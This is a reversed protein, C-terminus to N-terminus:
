WETAYRTETMIPKRTMGEKKPTLKDVVRRLSGLKEVTITYVDFAVEVKGRIVFLSEWNLLDGFEKYSDSFMVCEFIDTEDEFTVFEMPERKKTSTVKRTIYVGALNITQGALNPIDQAKRIREGLVPLYRELPHETVPFGFSEIELTLREQHTLPERSYSIQVPEGVGDQLYFNAVKFVIEKHNTEPELEAFCGANTLAMADALNIDVRVLFDNLSQFNGTKREALITDITKSQLKKIAMFGMRIRDKRGRYERWSTNIYPPLIKTGFRRAESLYAYASYFGGQNSIVAALFEAPFHAKLFACTFSLMAYSASHPKCFSYGSFSEIMSWLTEGLQQTYGRNVAGTVFKKKWVPVLHELAPRSIVKRVYDSEAYGFGAIERAVMSVQEEYVMIGYSEALCKLDPHLLKWPKGHIRELMLNTFRNAAPRIISSYIVVHEFDVVGSKQLLQRTAPSEIYFVGMTRGSKMLAETKPDGIPQIKHYDMYESRYLGLQKLTDRVVALSRNGLIDIKLLGSDEVQDKEWEVIQVGKPAVLVPAYKRIEDPVIIIGGPHVSPTRFVGVIKESQQIIQLLTDDLDLNKFRPDSRIWDLLQTKRAFYGIRKTVSKIEENSLGYVKSVERIASRPQMFVQSSVMATRENSYKKFIYDLIGDREDWPFDVDIDPMDVREPHIFREFVLNYKIPDVQTIFLCYSVVSAAGSGRGITAKTQQVIDWVVLFYPAYGKQTILSLEYEIRKKLAENIDGYRVKAGDYVLKRLKRNAKYTDKLSMGPFITNVYNWDTKCREALYQSNNIAALSNPFLKIMEKESRFFHRDGKFDEATLQSLTENKDIARLIKHTKQDGPNLFYVDGTAVIELNFLRALRWARRETMGPRLEVYLHTEPMFRSLQELLAEQHALVFLGANWKKLLEAVPQEDDDHVASIIRCLNEYGYQDEALLIADDGASLINSGAIPKIDAEKAFQVFRIFGWLGNVETLAIYQQGHAKARALLEQPNATGRMRSFTSHTNLHALM